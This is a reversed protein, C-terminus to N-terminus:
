LSGLQSPVIRGPSSCSTYCLKRLWFFNYLLLSFYVAYLISPCNSLNSITSLGVLPVSDSSHQYRDVQDQFGGAVGICVSSSIRFSLPSFVLHAPLYLLTQKHPTAVRVVLIFISPRLKALLNPLGFLYCCFLILLYTFKPPVVKRM